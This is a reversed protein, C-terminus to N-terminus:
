TARSVYAFLIRWPTPQKLLRSCAFHGFIIYPFQPASTSAAHSAHATTESSQERVSSSGARAEILQLAASGSRRPKGLEKERWLSLIALRQAFACGRSQSTRDPLGFSLSSRNRATTVHTTKGRSSISREPKNPRSPM